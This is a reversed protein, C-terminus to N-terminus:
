NYSGMMIGGACNARQGAQQDICAQQIGQPNNARRLREITTV